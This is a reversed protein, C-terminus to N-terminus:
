DISDAARGCAIALDERFIYAPSGDALRIAIEAVELSLMGLVTRISRDNEVLALDANRSGLKEILNRVTYLADLVEVRNALLQKATSHLSEKVETMNNMTNGKTTTHYWYVGEM